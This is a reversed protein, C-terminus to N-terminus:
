NKVLYYVILQGYYASTGIMASIPSIGTRILKLLTYNSQNEINPM